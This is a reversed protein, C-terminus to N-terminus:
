GGGGRVGKEKKAGCAGGREGGEGGGVGAATLLSVPPQSVHHSLATVAMAKLQRACRVCGRRPTVISCM